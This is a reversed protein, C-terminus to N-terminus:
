AQKKSHMPMKKQEQIAVYVVFTKSNVDLAAIVFEKLDIIQVQETTFLAKNITYTKWTLTKKNFLVDTNSIKLFLIGLIVVFKINAM